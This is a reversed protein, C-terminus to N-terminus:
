KVMGRIRSGLRFLCNLAYILAFVVLMMPWFLTTIGAIQWNASGERTTSSPKLVMGCGIGTLIVGAVYVALCLHLTSIEPTVSDTM